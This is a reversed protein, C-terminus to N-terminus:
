SSMLGSSPLERKSGVSVSATCQPWRTDIRINRGEAWGLKQLTERFVAVFAQGEPDNEAHAMLMGIRRIRDPLEARAALPCVAVTGGILTIFERRRM